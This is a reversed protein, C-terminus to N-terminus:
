QQIDHSRHPYRDGFLSTWQFTLCDNGTGLLTRILSLKGFGKLGNVVMETNTSVSDSPENDM